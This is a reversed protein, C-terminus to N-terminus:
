VQPDNGASQKLLPTTPMRVTFTTGQGEVSQVEIAGGHATVLMRAIYLGLGSGGSTGGEPRVYRRFLQDRIGEPIGKGRDIIEICAMDAERAVRVRVPESAEAHKLANDVLNQVIQAVRNADVTAIVPGDPEEFVVRGSEPASQISRVAARAIEMLNESRPELTLAGTEARVLDALENSLVVVRDVQNIIAQVSPEHYAGRRQLLQANLRLAALPSRLDHTVMALFDQRLREMNLRATIDRAVILLAPGNPLHAMSVQLDVPVGEGTACLLMAEASWSGDARVADLMAAIEPVDQGSIDALQRDLLTQRTCHLLACAAQNVEIVRGDLGTIIIADAVSEFVTRFREEASRADEFLRANDIAYAARRALDHALAESRDGYPDDSELRFFTITGLTRGRATLPAVLMSKLHLDLVRPVDDANAMLDVITQHDIEEVLELEGSRLVHYPGVVASLNPPYCPDFTFESLHPPMVPGSTAVCQLTGDPQVLHILCWSGLTTVGLDTVKQLTEGTALSSALIASANALFRQDDSARRRDTIDQVIAIATDTSGGSDGPATQITAVITSSDARHLEQVASPIPQGTNLTTALLEQIPQLGGRASDPAVWLGPYSGPRADELSIGLIAAM